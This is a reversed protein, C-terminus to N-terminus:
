IVETLLRWSKLVGREFVCAVPKNKLDSVNNVKAAQLLEITKRATNAFAENQDRTDWKAHDSPEMSWYGDFSCVGWSGVDSGLTVSLGFQADQYGGLGFSVSQIKGIKEGDM